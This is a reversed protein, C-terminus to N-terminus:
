KKINELISLTEPLIFNESAKTLIVQISIKEPTYIEFLKNVILKVKAVSLAGCVGLLVHFKGDDQPLRPDTNANQEGTGTATTTTPPPAAATATAVTGTTGSSPANASAAASHPTSQTSGVSSVSTARISEQSKIADKHFVPNDVHQPSAAPSM